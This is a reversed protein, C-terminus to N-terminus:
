DERVEVITGGPMSVTVDGPDYSVIPNVWRFIWKADEPRANVCGRSRPVGYDNHWFTSHIAVGNGVFLTTWGVGPIDWGGGTTGGVMHISIIKRWIPHPGPPTLAEDSRRGQADFEIGTSVRCFYVERGGEFCSLEQRTVNVIVRKDEADPHIPQVEQSTLPRFAEAAAWFIDGFGYRENIRYSHQGTSDEKIQDVWIVQSYYLRPAPSNLLWPARAPPNALVVDVWPVTVEVWMGPGLSTDLLQGAPPNPLHKVPQLLPAHIYGMPTEVWRQNIRYPHSGTVERLWPVIADQYLVRATQSEVDPKSKVDVVGVTVRGLLDSVPFDVSQLKRLTSSLSMAAFGAGNLKIFARRSLKEMKTIERPNILARTNGCLIGTPQDMAM